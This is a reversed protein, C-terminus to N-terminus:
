YVEGLTTHRVNRSGGTRSSVFNHNLGAVFQSDDESMRVKPEEVVSKVVCQKKAQKHTPSCDRRFSQPYSKFFIFCYRKIVLDM